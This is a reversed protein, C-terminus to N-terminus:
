ADELVHTKIGLPSLYSDRLCTSTHEEAIYKHENFVSLNEWYLSSQLPQLVVLVLGNFLDGCGCSFGGLCIWADLRFSQLIALHCLRHDAIDAPLLEPTHGLGLEMSGFRSNAM